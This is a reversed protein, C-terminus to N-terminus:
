NARKENKIFEKAQKIFEEAEELNNLVPIGSRIATAVEIDAGPSDGPIRILVDCRSLFELDIKMWTSWAKKSYIDVFHSLHPCFPAYGMDVLESTYQIAIDVNDVVSGKSYPGAVYIKIM